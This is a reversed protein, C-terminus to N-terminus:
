TRSLTPASAASKGVEAEVGAAEELGSVFPGPGLSLGGDSDRFYRAKHTVILPAKDAGQEQSEPALLRFADNLRAYTLAAPALGVVVADYPPHSPPM